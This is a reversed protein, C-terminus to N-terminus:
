RFWEMQSAASAVSQRKEDIPPGDSVANVVVNQPWRYPDAILRRRDERSSSLRKMLQVPVMYAPDLMELFKLGRDRGFALESLDASLIRRVAENRAAHGMAMVSALLEPRAVVEKWARDRSVEFRASLLCTTRPGVSPFAEYEPAILRADEHAAGVLANAFKQSITALDSEVYPGLREFNKPLFLSIALLWSAKQWEDKLPERQRLWWESDVGSARLATFLSSSRGDAFVPSNKSDNLRTLRPVVLAGSIAVRRVAFCAGFVQDLEDLITVWWEIEDAQALAPDKTPMQYDLLRGVSASWPNRRARRLLKDNADRRVADASQDSVVTWRTPSLVLVLGAMASGVNNLPEAPLSGNLIEKLVLDAAPDKSGINAGGLLLIEAVDPFSDADPCISTINRIQRLLGMEAGLRLWKRTLETESPRMQTWWESSVLPTIRLAILSIDTLQSNDTALFARKLLVQLMQRSAVEDLVIPNDESALVRIALDSDLLLSELARRMARPRQNFIKDQLFFLLVERVYLAETPRLSQMLEAM